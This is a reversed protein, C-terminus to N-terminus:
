SRIFDFPMAEVTELPTAWQKAGLVRLAVRVRRAAHDKGGFERWEPEVADLDEQLAVVRIVLPTDMIGLYRSLRGLAERCETRNTQHSGPDVKARSSAEDYRVTAFGAMGSGTYIGRIRLGVRYDNDSITQKSRWRLLIDDHPM